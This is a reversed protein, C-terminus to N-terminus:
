WVLVASVRSSWSLPTHASTGTSATRSVRSLRVRYAPSRVASPAWRVLFYPLRRATSSMEKVTSSPTMVAFVGPPVRIVARASPHLASHATSTFGATSRTLRLSSARVRVAPSVATSSAAASGSPSTAHILLSSVTASTLSPVTVALFGPAAAMRAALPPFYAQQVTRTRSASTGTSVTARLWVVRASFGPSVAARVAM